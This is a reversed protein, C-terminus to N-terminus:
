FPRLPGSLSADAGIGPAKLGPRSQLRYTKHRNKAFRADDPSSPSPYEM